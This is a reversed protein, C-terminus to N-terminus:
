GEGGAAARQRGAEHLAKLLDAEGRTLGCVSALEEPPMGSELLKLAQSHAGGAHAQLELSDLRERLRTYLTDFREELEADRHRGAEVVHQLETLERELRGFAEGSDRAARERRLKLVQWAAWLALLPFYILDLALLVSLWDFHM